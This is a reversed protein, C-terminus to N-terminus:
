LSTKFGLIPVVLKFIIWCLHQQKLIIRNFYTTITLVHWVISMEPVSDVVDCYRVHKPLM